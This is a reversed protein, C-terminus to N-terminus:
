TGSSSPTRSAATASARRLHGPARPDRPRPPHRARGQAADVPTRAAQEDSEAKPGGRFGPGDGQPEAGERPRLLDEGTVDDTHRPCSGVEYPGFTATRADIGELRPPNHRPVLIEIDGRYGKIIGRLQGGSRLGLAAGDGSALVAASLSGLESLKRNGAIYVGDYVVHLRSCEVEYDIQKESMGVDVLQDRSAPGHQRSMLDAMRLQTRKRGRYIPTWIPTTWAGSLRPASFKAGRSRSARAAPRRLRRRAAPRERERERPVAPPVERM